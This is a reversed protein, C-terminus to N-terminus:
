NGSAIGGGVTPQTKALGGLLFTFDQNTLRSQLFNIARNLWVIARQDEGTALLGYSTGLFILANDMYPPLVTVDGDVALPPPTIKFFATLSVIAIPPPWILIQTGSRYWRQVPGNTARNLRFYENKPIWTLLNENTDDRVLDVVLPNPPGAYANQGVVTPIVFEDDLEPFDIGSAVDNYALNLWTDIRPDPTSTKNGMNSDVETRIQLLTLVGM